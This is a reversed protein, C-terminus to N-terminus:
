EERWKKLNILLVGSNIYGDVMPYRLRNFVHIYDNVRDRVGALAYDDIETEWLERLSGNVILDCDLYLVKDIDKLVEGLFLRYYAGFNLRANKEFPFGVFDDANITYFRIECHHSIVWETLIRQTDAPIDDCILHFVIDEGKNNEMISAIVTAAYPAYHKDHCLAIDMDSEKRKGISM